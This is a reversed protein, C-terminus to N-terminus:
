TVFRVSAVAMALKRADRSDSVDCPRFFRNLSFRATSDAPVPRDLDLRFTQWDTSRVPIESQILVHQDEHDGAPDVTIALCLDNKEVLTGPVGGFIEVARTGRPVPLSFVPGTWRFVLNEGTERDHWGSLLCDYRDTNFDVRDPVTKVTRMRIRDYHRDRYVPFQDINTVVQCDNWCGGCRFRAIDDRVKRAESGTMIEDITRTAVNGLRRDMLVPCNPFVDGYLDIVVDTDMARCPVEMQRKRNRHCDTIRDWFVVKAPHHGDRGVEQDAILAIARDLEALDQETFDFLAASDRNDYAGGCYALRTSFAAGNKLALHYVDRIHSINKRNVTFSILTRIGRAKLQALLDLARDFAGPIGRMEDNVRGMGDISIQVLLPNRIGPLRDLLRRSNLANTTVTLPLHGPVADLLTDFFPDITPEGGAIGVSGDPAFLPSSFLRDLQEATLVTRGAPAHTGKWISCNVCRSNCRYTAFFNINM